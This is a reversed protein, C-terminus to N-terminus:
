TWWSTPVPAIRSWFTSRGFGAAPDAEKALVPAAGSRVQATQQQQPQAIAPVAALAAAGGVAGKLFNRRGVSTKKSRAM